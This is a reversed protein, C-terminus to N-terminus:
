GSNRRQPVIFTTEIRTNVASKFFNLYFVNHQGLDESKIVNCAFTETKHPLNMSFFLIFNWCLFIQFM